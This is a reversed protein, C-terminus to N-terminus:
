IDQSFHMAVWELQNKEYFRQAGHNATGTDLELRDCDSRKALQQLYQMFKGGIGEERMDAAVALDELFLIRGRSTTLIRHGALACCSNDAGTAITLVYGEAHAQRLFGRAAVPTLDPRLSLLLPTIETEVRPDEPEIDIFALTQDSTTM